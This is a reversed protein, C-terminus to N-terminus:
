SKRALVVSDVSRAGAKKLAKAASTLTAGTTSIDDVLLVSSGHIHASPTPYYATETQQQRRVRSAGVQRQQGTRNILRAYRWNHTRALEYAIKQAHDYGRERVRKTATPVYTVVTKDDLYPLATSMMEAISSALARNREFKFQTVIKKIREDYESVTWAHQIPTKKRCSICTLFDNTAANCLFCSSPLSTVIDNQCGNCVPNGESSCVACIHPAILDLAREILRM